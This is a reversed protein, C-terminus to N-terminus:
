TAIHLATLKKNNEIEVEAGSEILLECIEKNGSKAAM